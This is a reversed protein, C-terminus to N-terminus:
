CLILLVFAIIVSVMRPISSVNFKYIESISTLLMFQYAELTFRIYLGFTFFQFLKNIVINYFKAAKNEEEAEDARPLVKLIIHTFIILLITLLFACNNNFASGSDIGMEELEGYEQDTDLWVTPVNVFVIQNIPLFGLSFSAFKNATIYGVVDVPLSSKTMLLFMYLQLQNAMAWLTAPSSFNLLSVGATAAAGAGTM